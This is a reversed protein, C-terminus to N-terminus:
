LSICPELDTEVYARTVFSTHESRQPENSTCEVAQTVSGLEIPASAFDIPIGRASLPPVTLATSSISLDLDAPLAPRCTITLPRNGHNAVTLQRQLRAPHECDVRLGAITQPIHAYPGVGARFRLPAPAYCGNATSLSVLGDVPAPQAPSMPPAYLVWATGTAGPPLPLPLVVELPAPASARLAAVANGTNTVTIPLYVSDGSRLFGFDREDASVELRASRVDDRVPVDTVTTAGLAVAIRLTEERVRPEYPVPLAARRVRLELAGRAPVAGSAPTVTFPEYGGNGDDGLFHASFPAPIESPNVLRIRREQGGADCGAVGFDIPGGQVMVGDGAVGEGSIALATPRAGCVPGSVTVAATAADAGLARPLYRMDGAIIAGPALSVAGTTSAGDLRREFDGGPASLVVTAPANGTNRVAFPQASTFGVARQGFALQPPDISLQAGRARLVLPIARPGGANSTVMLAATLAEGAAAEAPVQVTAQVIVAGGAPVAATRPSVAVRPDSPALEFRLESGGTNFISFDAAASGGCDADGLDIQAPLVAFPPRFTPPDSPPDRDPEAVEPATCAALTSLSLAIWAWRRGGLSQNQM